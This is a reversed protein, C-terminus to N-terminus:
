VLFYRGFFAPVFVGVSSNLPLRLTVLLVTVLLAGVIKVMSVVVAATLVSFLLGVDRM